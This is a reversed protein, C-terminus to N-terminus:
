AYEGAVVLEGFGVPPAYKFQHAHLAIEAMASSGYDDLYVVIQGDVPLDDPDFAVGGIGTEPDATNDGNWDGDELAAWFRGLKRDVCILQTASLNNESIAGINAVRTAENVQIDGDAYLRIPDFDRAINELAFYSIDFNGDADGRSLYTWELYFKDPANTLDPLLGVWGWGHMQLPAGSIVDAVGALVELYHMEAQFDPESGGGDDPGHRAAAHLLFARM